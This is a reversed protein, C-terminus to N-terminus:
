FTQQALGVGLVPGTPLGTPSGGEPEITIEFLQDAVPRPLDPGALSSRIARELIGLSVPPGEPDPKTWVQLVQAGDPAVPALPTVRVTDDAFAEIVAVSNGDADLLIAMVAPDPTLLESFLLAALGICAAMALGAIGRWRRAAQPLRHVTAGEPPPPAVAPVDPAAACAAQLAAWAGVPMPLEPATRDVALWSESVARVEAALAEDQPGAPAALRAEVEAREQPDLLGLVYDEALNRIGTM